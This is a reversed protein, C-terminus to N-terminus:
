QVDLVQFSSTPRPQAIDSGAQQEIESEVISELQILLRYLRVITPNVQLSSAYM